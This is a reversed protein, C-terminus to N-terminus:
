KCLYHLALDASSEDSIFKINNMANRRIIHNVKEPTLVQYCSHSAMVNVVTSGFSTSHKM